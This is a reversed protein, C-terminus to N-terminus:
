LYFKSAREACLPVNKLVASSSAIFFKAILFDFLKAGNEATKCMCGSQCASKEPACQALSDCLLLCSNTSGTM